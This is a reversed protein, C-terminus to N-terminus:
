YTSAAATLSITVSSSVKLTDEGNNPDKEIYDRLSFFNWDKDSGLIETYDVELSLASTSQPLSGAEITTTLEQQYTQWQMLVSDNAYLTATHMEYEETFGKLWAMFHLTTGEQIEQGEQPNLIVIEPVPVIEEEMECGTLGSLALTLVLLGAAPKFSRNTHPM